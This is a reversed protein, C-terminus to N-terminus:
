KKGKMTAGCSPRPPIFTVARGAAAGFTAVGGGHCQVAGAAATGFGGSM